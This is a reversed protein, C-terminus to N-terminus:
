HPPHPGRPHSQGCRDGGHGQFPHRLWNGSVLSGPGRRSVRSGYLKASRPTFGESFGPRTEGLRPAGHSVRGRPMLPRASATRRCPSHHVAARYVFPTLWIVGSAQGRCVRRRTGAAVHAGAGAEMVCFMLLLLRQGWEPGPLQCPPAPRLRSATREAHLPRRYLHRHRLAPSFM